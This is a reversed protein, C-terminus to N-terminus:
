GGSRRLLIRAVERITRIDGESRNALDRVLRRLALSPRKGVETHGRFDFLEHLEIGLATAIRWATEVSPLAVGREVRSITEPTVGVAEALAEQTLHAARRRSYLKDGIRRALQLTM